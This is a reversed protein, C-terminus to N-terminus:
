RHSRYRPRKIYNLQISKRVEEIQAVVLPEIVPWTEDLIEPGVASMVENFLDENSELGQFNAEMGKVSFDINMDRMTWGGLASFQLRGQCRM